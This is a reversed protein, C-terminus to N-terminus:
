LFCGKRIQQWCQQWFTVLIYFLVGWAAEWRAQPTSLHRLPSEQEDM